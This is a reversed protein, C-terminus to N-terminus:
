ELPFILPLLSRGIDTARETVPFRPDVAALDMALDSQRVDWLTRVFIQPSARPM